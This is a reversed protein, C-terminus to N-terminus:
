MLVICMIRKVFNLFDEPILDIENIDNEVFLIIEEEYRHGFYTILQVKDRNAESIHLRAIVDKMGGRMWFGLAEKFSLTWAIRYDKSNYEETSMCRYLTIDKTSIDKFYEYEEEKMLLEQICKPSSFLRRLDATTWEETRGRQWVSSLLVSYEMDTLNDGQVLMNFDHVMSPINSELLLWQFKNGIEKRLENTKDM